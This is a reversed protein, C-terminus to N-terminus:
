KALVLLSYGGLIRVALDQHISFSVVRPLRAIKQLMTNALEICRPTFFYDVIEYGSETVTALAAEKTFYQIHGYRERRIMLGRRRLVAQVSLDLPIHFIKLAGKSSIGRLFSFCDEVHEIVDLVLILDFRAHKDASLEGLIFRLNGNERSECLKIAQPSIEYGSFLCADDMRQQLLRLAEGAGCGAEAITKPHLDHKTLM